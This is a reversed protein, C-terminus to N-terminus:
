RGAGTGTGEKSATNLYEMIGVHLSWALRDQYEEQELRRAEQRNSLFGCEVIVIPEKVHLLPYYNGNAKAQRHNEEGLVYDFRRQLIEALYKGRESSKYYFVQGGSVDPEHYSNQHVSVVLDPEADEIIECRKKMDATKKRSDGASYLRKDGDRTLVVDVDSAELYYKLKNVIDLNIDKELQGDVGVKGPDKGGHGADLVVVPRNKPEQKGQGLGQAALSGSHWSILAVVFLLLLGMFTQWVSQRM